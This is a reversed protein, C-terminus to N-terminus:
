GLRMYQEVQYPRPAKGTWVRLMGDYSGSVLADVRSGDVASVRRCIPGDACTRM